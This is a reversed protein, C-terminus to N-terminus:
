MDQYVSLYNNAQIELTFNNEVKKRGNIGLKRLREEDELLWTIGRALDDIDFPKALYGNQQHEIMDSMGGIDFAVCPTGCALSEMVTNPLNDQVSPALFVDGAAYALSLSIDDNLRGLYHSKLGLEPLNKPQSAGFVVLEVREGWGSESLKQLASQLLNFGKRPDSTASIAGFLILQKDEPLGLISRAVSKQIPRYQITDLGNPIVEIRMDKLLSSSAACKALWHSPTVITLNLNQWAKAKRQWIWRSLDKEKSSHLQPCTGCSNTYNMCDANYHCGGTFAWMDHLTWVLPQKFQRLAKIPIFGDCVWHLNIIEPDAESILDDLSNPLWQPSFVTRDRKPYRYLPLQDLTPRLKALGKSLKSSGSLVRFDDSIKTQVLIQSDVQLDPLGQLGQHLRYASRAAGGGIDSSSCLLVKM